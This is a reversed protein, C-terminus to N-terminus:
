KYLIVLDGGENTRYVFEEGESELTVEYGPTIVQACLRNPEPIGLCANPWDREDINKLKIESNKDILGSSKLDAKTNEIVTIEEESYKNLSNDPNNIDFDIGFFVLALIIAVIVGVVIWFTENFIKM